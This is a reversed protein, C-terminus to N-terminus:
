GSRGEQADISEGALVGMFDEVDGIFADPRELAAFHGGSSHERAWVLRGTRAAWARPVPLLEYPFFSYGLPKELYAQQLGHFPAEEERYTYISSPFSETLWYLSTNALITPLPIDVDSWELFKEALWALLAVPSASLLYAITAPRTAHLDAYAHGNEMFRKGRSLQKAELPSLASDSVSTPADMCCFNLHCAACEPYTVALIRSVYSGIDGGQTIYRDFGLSLLLKHMLRSTDKLRWNSDLPPQQSFGYGPLSPVIIHYPLDQPTYKERLIDMMPLFELISGPWGHFFSIPVADKRESFLALFHLSFTRGDDDTITTKYNPFSNIHAETDRWNFGDLWTSKADLMWQRSVGFGRERTQNEYTDKAIPSLRILTNMDHLKQEDIHVKFQLLKHGVNSPVTAFPAVQETTAM